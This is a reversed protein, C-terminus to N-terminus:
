GAQLVYSSCLVWRHQQGSRPACKQAKRSTSTLQTGGAICQGLPSRVVSSFMETNAQIKGAKIAREGIKMKYYSM